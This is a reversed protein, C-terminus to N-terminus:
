RWAEMERLLTKRARALLGRVTSVPLDLEEAIGVYSSGALERLTWCRRQDEPLDALARSLAETQSEAEALRHPSQHEPAIPENLDIDARERRARLRDISKRSVIRMLWSKVAAGDDLTSLQKWATIFTEQVVDDMEDNSGLVRSAYVRMLPGYRRVIVEFARVDGDAARSALTLDSATDLPSAVHPRLSTPM